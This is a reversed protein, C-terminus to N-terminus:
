RVKDYTLLGCAFMHYVAWICMARTRNNCFKNTSMTNIVCTVVFYIEHPIFCMLVHARVQDSEFFEKGTYKNLPV